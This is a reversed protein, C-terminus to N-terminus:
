KKCNTLLKNIIYIHFIINNTNYINMNNIYKIIFENFKFENYNINFNLIKILNKLIKNKKLKNLIYKNSIDLKNLINYINIILYSNLELYLISFVKDDNDINNIIKCKYKKNNNYILGYNVVSNEKTIIIIRNNIYKKILNILLIIANKFSNAKIIYKEDNIDIFIYEYIKVTKKELFINKDFLLM